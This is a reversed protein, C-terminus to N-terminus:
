VLVTKTTVSATKAADCIGYWALNAARDELWSDGSNLIICRKAWTMGASGLTVPDPGLNTFVIQRRDADAALIAAIVASCAVAANDPSSAAPIDAAAVNSTYLPNGPDDGQANQVPLPIPSSITAIVSAGEAFNFDIENDSVVVQIAADVTTRVLVGSYHGASLRAKFGRVVANFEEDNQGPIEIRLEVSAAAGIDVISFLRGQVQLRTWQNALTNITTQM